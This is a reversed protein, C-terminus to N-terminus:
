LSQEGTILLQMNGPESAPQSVVQELVQCVAQKLGSQWSTSFGAHM